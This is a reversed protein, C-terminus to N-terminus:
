KIINKKHFIFAYILFLPYSYGFIRQNCFIYKYLCYLYAKLKQSM